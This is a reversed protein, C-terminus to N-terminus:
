KLQYPHPWIYVSFELFRRLQKSVVDVLLYILFNIECEILTYRYSFGIRKSYLSQTPIMWPIASRIKLDTVGILATYPFKTTFHFTMINFYYNRRNLTRYDFDVFKTCVRLLISVTTTEISNENRNEGNLKGLNYSTLSISNGDVHTSKEMVM